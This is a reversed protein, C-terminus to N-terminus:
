GRGGNQGREGPETRERGNRDEGGTRDERERPETRERGNKAHWNVQVEHGIGVTLRMMTGLAISNMDNHFHICHFMIM